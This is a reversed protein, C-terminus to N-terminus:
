SARDGAGSRCVGALLEELSLLLVPPGEARRVLARVAHYGAQLALEPPPDVAEVPCSLVDVAAQVRLGFRLGDVELVAIREGPSGDLAAGGLARGLDVVPIVAGRLDIVGEILEPAKPLPTIEQGRVIERVQHVDVGYLQGRLELCAFEVRADIAPQIEPM